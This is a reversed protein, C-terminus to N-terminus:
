ISSLSAIFDACKNSDLNILNVSTYWYSLQVLQSIEDLICQLARSPAIGKHIFKEVVSYDVEFIANTLSLDRALRM